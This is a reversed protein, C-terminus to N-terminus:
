KNKERKRRLGRKVTMPMSLQTDVEETTLREAEAQITRGHKRLLKNIAALSKEATSYLAIVDEMNPPKNSEMHEIVKRQRKQKDNLISTLVLNICTGLIAVCALIIQTLNDSM